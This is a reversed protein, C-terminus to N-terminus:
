EVDIWVPSYCEKSYKESYYKEVDAYVKGANVAQIFEADTLMEKVIDTCHKPLNVYFGDFVAVAQEGFKGKSNIYVGKLEVPRVIDGKYLEEMSFYPANEKNTFDFKKVGKNYKDAINSM